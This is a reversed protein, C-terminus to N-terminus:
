RHARLAEEVRDATREVAASIAALRDSLAALRETARIAAARNEDVVKALARLDRKLEAIAEATAGAVSPDPAATRSARWGAAGGGGVAAVVAALLAGVTTVDLTVGAASTAEQALALAPVAAVTLGALALAVRRM